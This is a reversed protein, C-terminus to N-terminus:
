LLIYSLLLLQVVKASKKGLQSGASSPWLAFYISCMGLPGCHRNGWGFQSGGGRGCALTNGRGAPVLPSPMPCVRRRTLPTPHDWNGEFLYYLIKIQPVVTGSNISGTKAFVFGFRENEIIPKNKCFSSRYIRAGSSQRSQPDSRRVALSLSSFFDQTWYWCGGVCHFRLRSLYLLNSYSVKFIWIPYLSLLCVPPFFLSASETSIIYLPQVTCYM